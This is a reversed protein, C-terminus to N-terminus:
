EDRRLPVETAKLADALRAKASGPRLPKQQSEHPAWGSLSVLVITARVRGDPDANTERYIEAARQLLGASTLRRSREALPNAAGMAALERMLHFPTEYRLTLRDIDAVPLAFGARQLLGGLDRVDAFPAVRPTAGGTRESEAALFASRLEGLSDGGVLTGLFLGDPKLARRIQVLAGPLDNAFQLSLTSVVLDVSEAALPLAEDDIVVDAPHRGAPGAAFVDARIVRDARGSATVAAALHDTPGGVAVATGFRRSVTALRDAVDEAALKLLFDAGAPAADIARRRRDAILRRDFLNPTM